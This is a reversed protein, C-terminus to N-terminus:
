NWFNIFCCKMSASTWGSMSLMAAIVVLGDGFGEVVACLVVEMPHRGSCGSSDLPKKEGNEALAGLFFKMEKSRTWMNTVESIVDVYSFIHVTEGTRERAPKCHRHFVTAGVDAFGMNKMCHGFEVEDVM